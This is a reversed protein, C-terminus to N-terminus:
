EGFNLQSPEVGLALAIKRMTKFNPYHHMREISVITSITVGAKKALDTQSMCQKIRLEKVKEM